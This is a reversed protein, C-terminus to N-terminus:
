FFIHTNVIYTCIFINYSHRGYILFILSFPRLLLLSRYVTFQLYFDSKVDDCILINYMYEYQRLFFILRNVNLNKTYLFYLFPHTSFHYNIDIMLKDNYHIYTFQHFAKVEVIITQYDYSM